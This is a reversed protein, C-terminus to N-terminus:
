ASPGGMLLQRGRRRRLPVVRAVRAVVVPAGVISMPALRVTAMLRLLRSQSAPLLRRSLFWLLVLLLKPPLRQLLGQLGSGRIIDLCRQAVVAVVKVLLCLLGLTSAIRTSLVYLLLFACILRMAVCAAKPAVCSLRCGPTFNM